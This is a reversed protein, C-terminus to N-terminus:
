RPLCAMHAGAPQEQHCLARQTALVMTYLGYSALPNHHDPLGNDIINNLWQYQVVVKDEDFSLHVAKIVENVFINGYNLLRHALTVHDLILEHPPIPNPADSFETISTPPRKLQFKVQISSACIHDVAHQAFEHLHQYDMDESPPEKNSSNALAKKTTTFLSFLVKNDYISHHVMTPPRKIHQQMVLPKALVQSILDNTDKAVVGFWCGIM